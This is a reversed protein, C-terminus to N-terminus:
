AGTIMDKSLEAFPANPNSLVIIVKGEPDIIRTPKDM